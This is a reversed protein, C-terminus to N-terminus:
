GPSYVLGVVNVTSLTTMRRQGFADASLQTSTPM